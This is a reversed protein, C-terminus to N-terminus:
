NKFRIGTAAGAPQAMVSRTPASRTAIEIQKKRNSPRSRPALSHHHGRVVCQGPVDPVRLRPRVGRAPGRHLHEAAQHRAPDGEAPTTLEEGRASIPRAAVVQRYTTQLWKLIIMLVVKIDGARRDTTLTGQAVLPFAPAFLAEACRFVCSRLYRPRRLNLESLTSRDRVPRLGPRAAAGLRRSLWGLGARRPDLLLAFAASRRLGAGTRLPKPWRRASCAVSRLVAMLVVGGCSRQRRSRRCPRTCCGHGSLLRWFM